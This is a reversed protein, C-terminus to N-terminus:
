FLWLRVFRRWDRWTTPVEMSGCPESEDFRSRIESLLDTITIWIGVGHRLCEGGQQCILVWKGVGTAYNYPNYELQVEVQVPQDRRPVRRPPQSDIRGWEIEDQRYVGYEITKDALFSVTITRPGSRPLAHVKAELVCNLWLPCRAGVHVLLFDRVRQFVEAPLVRTKRCLLSLRHTAM